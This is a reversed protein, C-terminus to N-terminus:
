AEYPEAVNEAIDLTITLWFYARASVEDPPRVVGTGIYMAMIVRGLGLIGNAPDAWEVSKRSELALCKKVDALLVHAPDTPNEKDDKVWGQIMLEWKGSALGSDTPPQMQEPPLPVELISVSPLPTEDGFVGRGRFVNPGIDNQYGNAVTVTGLLASLRKQIELRVPNLLITKTM